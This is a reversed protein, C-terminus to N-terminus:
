MQVCKVNTFRVFHRLQYPKVHTENTGMEFKSQSVVQISQPERM